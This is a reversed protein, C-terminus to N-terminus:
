TENATNPPPPKYAFRGLWDDAGVPARQPPLTTAFYFQAMAVADAVDHVRRATPARPDLLEPIWQSALRETCAKRGDYDHHGIRFHAHMSRPHIRVVKDKHKSYFFSVVEGLGGPPQRELLIRDAAAAHPALVHAYTHELRDWLERTRPLRCGRVTCARTTNECGYAVVRMSERCGQVVAWGLNVVGPDISLLRM